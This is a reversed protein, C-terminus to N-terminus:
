RPSPLTGDTVTSSTYESFTFLFEQCKFYGCRGTRIKVQTGGATGLWGQIVYERKPDRVAFLTDSVKQLPGMYNVKGEFRHGDCDDEEIWEVSVSARERDRLDAHGVFDLFM